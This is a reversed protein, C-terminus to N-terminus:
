DANYFAIYKTIKRRSKAHAVSRWKFKIKIKQTHSKESSHRRHTHTNYARSVNVHQAHEIGIQSDQKLHNLGFCFRTVISQAPM